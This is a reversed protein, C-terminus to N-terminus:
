PHPLTVSITNHLLVFIKMLDFVIKKETEVRVRKSVLWNLWVCFCIFMFIREAKMKMPHIDLECEGESERSKIIVKNKEGEPRHFPLVTMVFHRLLAVLPEGAQALSLSSIIRPIKKSRTSHLSLNVLFLVFFHQFNSFKSNFRSKQVDNILRPSSMLVENFQSM